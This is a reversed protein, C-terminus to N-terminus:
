LWNRHNFFSLSICINVYYYVSHTQELQSISRWYQTTQKQRMLTQRNSRSEWLWWSHGSRSIGTLEDSLYLVVTNRDQKNNRDKMTKLTYTNEAQVGPTRSINEQERFAPQNGWWAEQVAAENRRCKEVHLVLSSVIFASIWLSLTKFRLLLVIVCRQPLCLDPQAGWLFMKASFTSSSSWMAPPFSFCFTSSFWPPYWQQQKIFILVADRKTQYGDKM